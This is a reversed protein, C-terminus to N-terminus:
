PALGGQAVWTAIQVRTSFGLKALIHEVHSEATRQAIVLRDAIERNSLSQAVLEAIERERRTLPGPSKPTAPLDLDDESHLAFAIIEDVSMRSGHRVAATYGAKGLARRIVTECEASYESFIPRDALASGTLEKLRRCAGLLRAAHHHRGAAASHWALLELCMGVGWPDYFQRKSSLAEQLLSSLEGRDGARWRVLALITLAWSKSWLAEHAQCLARSEEAYGAARPDDSFAALMALQMLTTSIRRPDARRRFEALARESKVFASRLDSGPEYLGTLGSNYVVEARAAPDDLQDALTEGQRLMANGRAWDGLTAHLYGARALAVAKHRSPAVDRDLARSIWYLEEAHRGTGTWVDHLADLFALVGDEGRAEELCHALAQRLNAHESTLWKFWHVQRPGFFDEWATVAARRYYASHRERLESERGSASLQHRGYSRVTQLLEYRAASGPVPVRSVISKDVLGALLEFIQGSTGDDGCVGEAASLDFSGAFISLDAWLRQERRSCLEYSWDLTSRLTQHRAPATLPGASLLQFRDDLRELIQEASLMRLRAAALEIALPLGDLRLCLQAIVDRNDATVAFSSTAARAREDFLRVADSESVGAGLEGQCEVTLPPVTFVQEGMVRLPQRSTAMIHLEPAAVLLKGIMLAASEALHECNDLVLLLRKDTLYNTLSTEAPRASREVMGLAETVTDALLGPDALSALEILRVGGPFARGAQRAVRVALRTKGVGGPGTLTM